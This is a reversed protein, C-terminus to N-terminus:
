EPLTRTLRSEEDKSPITAAIASLMYSHYSLKILNCPLWQYRGYQRRIVQFGTHNQVMEPWVMHMAMTLFESESDVKLM